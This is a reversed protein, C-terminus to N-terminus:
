LKSLFVDHNFERFRYEIVPLDDTNLPATEKEAMHKGEIDNFVMLKQLDAATWLGAKRCEKRFEVNSAMRSEIGSPDYFM